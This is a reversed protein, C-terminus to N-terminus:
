KDIYPIPIDVYVLSVFPYYVDIKYYDNSDRVFFVGDVLIELLEIFFGALGLENIKGEVLEYFNIIEQRTVIDNYDVKEPLKKSYAAGFSQNLHIGPKLYGGFKQIELFCDWVFNFCSYNDLVIKGNRQDYVRWLNYYPFTKNTTVLFYSLFNKLQAGSLSGVPVNMSHWYTNNIGEYVFIKGYNQWNLDKTGNPYVIIDPILANSLAPYADYNLTFSYSTNKNVFGIGSHFGGLPGLMDLYSCYLLPAVLYRVEIVDDPKPVPLSTWDIPIWPGCYDASVFHVFV